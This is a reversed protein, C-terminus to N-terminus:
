VPKLRPSPILPTPAGIRSREIRLLLLSLIFFSIRANAATAVTPM